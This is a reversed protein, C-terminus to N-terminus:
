ECVGGGGREYMRVRVRASVCVCVCVCVESPTARGIWFIVRSVRVRRVRVGVCMSIVWGVWVASLRFPTPHVSTDLWRAM